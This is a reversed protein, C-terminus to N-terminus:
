FELAAPDAGQLTAFHSAVDEINEDEVSATVTDLIRFIEAGNKGSRLLSLALSRNM